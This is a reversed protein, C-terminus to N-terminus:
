LLKEIKSAAIGLAISFVSSVLLRLVTGKRSDRFKQILQLDGKNLQLYSLVPFNDISTEIQKGVAFASSWLVFAATGFIVFFRALIESSPNGALSVPISRTAFYGLLVIISIRLFSPAFHSVRQLAKLVFPQPTKKCGKVWEDFGELFGRAIVYDAYEVSIEAVDEGVMSFFRGRMFAPAEEEFQQILGLRSTLRVTVVYEQPQSLGAPIISFNYKLVLIVTPSSSGQNYLQFKEFSTFTEKREKEHFVTVVENSAVINHVDCLQMIKHHVQSVDQFDILLSDSYRKRIQETRGTIQHYIDQYVKLSVPSQNATVRVVKDADSEGDSHEILNSL